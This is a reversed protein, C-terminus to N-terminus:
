WKISFIRPSIKVSLWAWRLWSDDSARRLQEMTKTGAMFSFGASVKIDKIITYDTELELGHGLTMNLTRIKTGTAYYHYDAYIDLNKLPTIHAGIFANQLGPTFGGYYTDVYFFEMAGYFKHHTGFVPNFGRVVTHQMLGVYGSPPVFFYKDGSLYDYGAEISCIKSPTYTVKGSAMWTKLKVDHEERGTQRYYSAEILWRKPSFSVYGGFLQQFCTKDNVGKEGYQMGVNMFLLSVGLPFRPVDYHYWATIMSKYPQYGNDADFFNGGENTNDDNQNYALIVHAKHWKHEYGLRLADHSNAAMAWDNSGIIREDDYSLIQRGIQAFWGNRSQMKVWAEYLSFAGDETDGWIAAHQVNVKAQLWDREYGLILRTRGFIFSSKDEVVKDDDDGGPLGGNRLEGRSLFDLDLTFHNIKEAPQPTQVLTDITLEEQAFVPSAMMLLLIGVGVRGTLSPSPTPHHTFRLM